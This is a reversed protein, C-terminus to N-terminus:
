KLKAHSTKTLILTSKSQSFIADPLGKKQSEDVSDQILGPITQQEININQTKIFFGSCFKKLFSDLLKKDEYLCSALSHTLKNEPQSYQDFINRM